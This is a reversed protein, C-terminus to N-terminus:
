KVRRIKREAVPVMALVRASADALSQALSRLGVVMLEDADDPFPPLARIQAAAASARTAAESWTKYGASVGKSLDVPTGKQLAVKLDESTVSSLEDDDPAPLLSLDITAQVVAELGARAAEAEAEAERARRQAEERERKAEREAATVADYADGLRALGRKVREAAEPQETVLKRAQSVYANNVDFLRALKKARSDDKTGSGVMDWAEAAGIARQGQTLNRRKVNLSIVLGVPDDGAYTEFRPVVGALECAALRNRGDLVGGDVDRVVPHLLGNAKVDDALARLEQESMMPFLEAAPHVEM